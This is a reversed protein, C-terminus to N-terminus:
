PEITQGVQAIGADVAQLEIQLDNIEENMRGIAFRRSDIASIINERKLFLEDKTTPTSEQRVITGDPLKIYTITGAYLSGTMLTIFFWRKM